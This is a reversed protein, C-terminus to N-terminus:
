NLSICFQLELTKNLMRKLKNKYIYPIKAKNLNKISFLLHIDVVCRSKGILFFKLNDLKTLIQISKLNKSYFTYQELNRLNIINEPITKVFKSDHDLGRLNILNYIEKPYYVGKNKIHVKNSYPSGKTYIDDILLMQDIDVTIM